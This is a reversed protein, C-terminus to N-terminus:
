AIDAQEQERICKAITAENMGVAPLYCGEAWFKRNESRCKLSAHRGSM